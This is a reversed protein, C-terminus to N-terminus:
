EEGAHEEGASVWHFTFEVAGPGPSRRTSVRTSAPCTSWPWPHPM